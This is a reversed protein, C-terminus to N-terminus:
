PAVTDGEEVPASPPVYGPLLRLENAKVMAANAQQQHGQRHLTDIVKKAYAPTAVSEEVAKAFAWDALAPDHAYNLAYDGFQAYSHPPLTARQFLLTFAESLRRDDLEVGKYRNDLLSFLAVSAEPPLVGNRLKAILRQWWIDEVRRKAQAAALILGQDSIISAGPLLSAREFERLALDNFPSGTYGDTMEFYQTALSSAARASNPNAAAMDTAMLLRDGWVSARMLGLGACFALVAAVAVYKLEPGDRMPIRAVLDAAAWLIGLLALYNRHEFVLELGVVNSTLLHSAFFWAVGLTFLPARARRWWALVALALLFIGGILTTFPQLWGRSPQFDDYFFTLSQNTPYLMQGLYLPLIRLQSLLREYTGFDRGFYTTTWYYPAVVIVYMVTAGVVATWFTLKWFREIGPRQANFRLVTGELLMAYIVVLVGSEKALIALVVTPVCALLWPWSREGAFQHERARLYFCLTALMFTASLTEMRQVVYLVSSTQLPHIAWLLALVLSAKVAWPGANVRPLLLVRRTLAFVLLTNLLHVLLGVAKYGWPDLGGAVHNLAFSAMSLPRAGFTGGPDFSTAARWLGDVDVTALHLRSNEVITSYDDFLFGGTLGPWYIAAVVM